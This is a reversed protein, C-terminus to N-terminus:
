AADEDFLDGQTDLLDPETLVEGEKDIITVDSAKFTVNAVKEREDLDYQSRIDTNIEMVKDLLTMKDTYNVFASVDKPFCAGGFGFKGDPGPVRWHSNGLRPEMSLAKIVALPMATMPEDEIAKCLQNFFTVKMALFSNIAYKVFSAEVPTLQCIKEHSPLKMYTSQQYFQLLMGNSQPMGGLVMYEPNSFEHDANKETLFEPSYIFRASAEENEISRCLKDIMDPTVTSKLVVASKTLRILKLVADVTSAADIRGNNLVPTPTCVFCLSPQTEILQDITTKYNPDVLFKEVNPHLCREVAKGVFGHGVIGVIPKEHGYDPDMPFFAMREQEVDRQQMDRIADAEALLRQQEETLAM